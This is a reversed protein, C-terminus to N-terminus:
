LSLPALIDVLNKIIRATIGWITHEGYRYFHVPYSGSKWNYRQGNPILEYPFGRAPEMHVRIQYSDPENALFHELPVTFVRDVEDANPVIDAAAIGHII